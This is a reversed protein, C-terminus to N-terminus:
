QVLQNIGQVASQQEVFLDELKSSVHSTDAHSPQAHTHMAASHVNTLPGPKDDATRVFAIFYQLLFMTAEQLHLVHQKFAYLSPM